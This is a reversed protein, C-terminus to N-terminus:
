AARSVGGVPPSRVDGGCQPMRRSVTCHSGIGGPNAGAGECSEDIALARIIKCQAAARARGPRRVAGALLGPCEPSQWAPPVRAWDSDALGLRATETYHGPPGGARALPNAKM